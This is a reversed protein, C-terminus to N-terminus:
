DWFLWDIGVVARPGPLSLPDVGNYYDSVLFDARAFITFDIIRLSAAGFANIRGKQPRIPSSSSEGLPTACGGM